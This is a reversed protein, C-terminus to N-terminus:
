LQNLYTDIADDGSLDPNEVPSKQLMWLETLESRSGPAVDSLPSLSEIEIFNPNTYTEFSCGNDPYASDPHHTMHYKSFVEGNLLYFVRGGKLDFGLKFPKEARPDQQLTVYKNYWRVRPDGMDTYPWAVITRNSLLGTDDTNMPIIETGGQACVTLGWIAFRLPKDGVNTVRMSVIVANPKEDTISVVLEKFVGNEKEVPPYFYATIRHEGRDIEYQVPDTDPYYTAPYYEPSLWIRHGGLNEWAKGQGFFKEFDGDSRGGLLPRDDQMINQGGVFGYRIIRPGVDVTVYVEVTGNDIALVKGFEKYSEIERVNVM